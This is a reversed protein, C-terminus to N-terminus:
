CLCDVSAIKVIDNVSLCVLLNWFVFLSDCDSHVLHKKILFLGGHPWDLYNETLFVKKSQKERRLM